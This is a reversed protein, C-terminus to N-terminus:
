LLKCPISQRPQCYEEIIVKRNREQSARYFDERSDQGTRVRQCERPAGETGGADSCEEIGVKDAEAM